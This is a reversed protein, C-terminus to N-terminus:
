SLMLIVNLLRYVGGAKQRLVKYYNIYKLMLYFSRCGHGGQIVPGRHALADKFDDLDARGAIMGAAGVVGHVHEGDDDIEDDANQVGEIFEAHGVARQKQGDLGNGDSKKRKVKQQM